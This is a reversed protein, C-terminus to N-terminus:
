LGRTQREWEILFAKARYEMTDDLPALAGDYKDLYKKKLATEIM